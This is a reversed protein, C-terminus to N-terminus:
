CITEIWWWVTLKKNFELNKQGNDYM